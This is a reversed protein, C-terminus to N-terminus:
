FLETLFTFRSVLPAFLLTMFAPGMVVIVIILIRDGIKDGISILWLILM